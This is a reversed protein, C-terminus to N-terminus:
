PEPGPESGTPYGFIGGCYIRANDLLPLQTHPDRGEERLCEYYKAAKSHNSHSHAVTAIVIVLVAAIGVGLV